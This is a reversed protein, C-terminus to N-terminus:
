LYGASWSERGKVITQRLAKHVELEDAGCCRLRGLLDQVAAKIVPVLNLRLELKHLHVVLEEAQVLPASSNAQSQCLGPHRGRRLQM